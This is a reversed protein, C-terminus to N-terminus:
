MYSVPNRIFSVGVCTLKEGPNLMVTFICIIVRLIQFNSVLM